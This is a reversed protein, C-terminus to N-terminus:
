LDDPRLDQMAGHRIHLVRAASGQIEFIVRHRAYLLQRVERDLM